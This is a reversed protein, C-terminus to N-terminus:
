TGALVLLGRVDVGQWLRERMARTDALARAGVPTVAFLRRSPGDARVRTSLLLGKAELRDLTAYVAGIAVDRDTVREIERRVQMGYAEDRTRLVAVVVQEEFVGLPAHPSESM